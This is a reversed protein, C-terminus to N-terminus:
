ALLAQSIPRAAIGGRGSAPTKAEVPPTMIVRSNSEQTPTALSSYNSADHLVQPHRRAPSSLVLASFEIM